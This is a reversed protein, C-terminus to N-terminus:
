RYECYERWQGKIDDLYYCFGLHNISLMLDGCSECMYHPSMTEIADFNFMNQIYMGDLVNIKEHCSGCHRETRCTVFKPDGVTRPGDLDFGCGCSISM